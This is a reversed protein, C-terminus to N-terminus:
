TYFYYYYDNNDCVEFLQLIKDVEEDVLDHVDIWVEAKKLAQNKELIEQRLLELSSLIMGVLLSLLIYASGIIFFIYHIPVWWGMGEGSGGNEKCLSDYKAFGTFYGFNACGLMGVRAVIYWGDLTMLQLLTNTAAEVSRWHYPDAEKFLMIGSIGFFYFFIFMLFGVYGFPKASEMIAVAVSALEELYFFHTTALFMRLFYLFELVELRSEFIPLWLLIITATDIIRWSSMFFHALSPTHLLLRLVLDVTLVSQVAIKVRVIAPYTHQSDRFVETLVGTLTMLVIAMRTSPASVLGKLRNALKLFPGLEEEDKSFVEDSSRRRQGTWIFKVLEAMLERREENEQSGAARLVESRRRTNETCVNQIFASSQLEDLRTMIGIAIAALSVSLLVFSGIIIFSWFLVGAAIPSAQPTRCSPTRFSGFPTSVDSSVNFTEYIKWGTYESDTADCGDLNINYLNSWNDFTAVRFLSILALSFSGFNFPDNTRFISQGLSAYMAVLNLLLLFSFSTSMLGNFMGSILIHTQPIFDCITNTIFFLRILRFWLGQESESGTIFCMMTIPLALVGSQTVIEISSTDHRRYLDFQVRIPTGIVQLVAQAIFVANVINDMTFVALDLSPYKHSQYPALYALNFFALPAVILRMYVFARSALALECRRSLEAVCKSVHIFYRGLLSPSPEFENSPKAENDSAEEDNCPDISELPTAICTGMWETPSRHMLEARLDRLKFRHSVATDLVENM